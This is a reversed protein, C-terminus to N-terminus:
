FMDIQTDPEFGFGNQIALDAFNVITNVDEDKNDFRTYQSVYKFRITDLAGNRHKAIILEAAGINSEGNEDNLFGYYEPRHIFGVIDADQEIAGSERLDSLVPRKDGGRQEVGRSLQSLAIIPVNLEKATEKLTRSITSIQQERSFMNESVTMLQLYDVIILEINKQQKMLKCKAKFDFISLSASDDIYLPSSVLDQISSHIKYLDNDSVNGKMIASSSVKAEASILRKILQVSSMELSFFLVPVKSQVVINRALSLVFATKGMAPRAAIIILDPKQLGGMLEDMKTFHTAIGSIGNTKNKAITIEEVADKTVELISKIATKQFQNTMNHLDNSFKGITDFIDLQPDISDKHFSNAIKISERKVQLECLYRCWAELNSDTTNNSIQSLYSVGIHSITGNKKMEIYVSHLDINKSKSYLEKIAKFIYFHELKFFTNEDVGTQIVVGITNEYSLLCGLVKQELEIDQPPPIGNPEYKIIKDLEM